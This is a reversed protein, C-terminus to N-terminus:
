TKLPLMQKALGSLARYQEISAARIRQRGELFEPEAKLVAQGRQLVYGYNKSACAEGARKWLDRNNPQLDKELKVAMTMDSCASLPATLVERAVTKQDSLKNDSWLM